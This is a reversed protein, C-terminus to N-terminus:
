ALSRRLRDVLDERAEDVLRAHRQQVNRARAFVALRQEGDLLLAEEVVRDVAAAGVLAPRQRDAEAAASRFLAATTRSRFSVNRTPPQARRQEEVGAAAAVVDGLVRRRHEVRERRRDRRESRGLLMTSRARRISGRGSRAGGRRCSGRARRPSARRARASRREAVDDFLNTAGRTCRPAPRGRRARPRPGRRRAASRSLAEAPRRLRALGIVCRTRRATASAFQEEVGAVIQRRARLACARRARGRRCAVRSGCRALGSIM